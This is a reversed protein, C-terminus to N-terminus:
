MAMCLGVFDLMARCLGIYGYMAIYLGVCGYMPRCLWVYGYFGYMNMWLEVYGCIAMCLGVDDYM